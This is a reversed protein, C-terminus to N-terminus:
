DQDHPAEMKKRLLTKFNKVARPDGDATGRPIMITEGNSLRWIRGHNATRVPYADHDAELLLTKFPNKM